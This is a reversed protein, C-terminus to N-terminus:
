NEKKKVKKVKAAKKAKKAKKVRKKKYLEAVEEVPKQLIASLLFLSKMSPCNEGNLLRSLQSKSMRHARATATINIDPFRGHRPGRDGVEHLVVVPKKTTSKSAFPSDTGATDNHEAPPKM